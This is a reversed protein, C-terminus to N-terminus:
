DLDEYDVYEGVDNRNKDKSKEPKYTITTEGEKKGAKDKQESDSKQFKEQERKLYSKVFYPIVYRVLIRFFVYVAVLILIFKLM